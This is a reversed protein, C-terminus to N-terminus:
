GMVHDQGYPQHQTAVAQYGPPPMTINGQAITAVRDLGGQIIAWWVILLPSFILSLWVLVVSVKEGGEGTYAQHIINFRDTLKHLTVLTMISGFIIFLWTLGMLAVFAVWSSEAMDGGSSVLGVIFLYGLLTLVSGVYTPLAGLLLYKGSSWDNERSPLEKLVNCIWFCQYIGFTLFSWLIPLGHGRVKAPKKSGAWWANAWQSRGGMAPNGM